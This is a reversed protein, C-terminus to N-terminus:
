RLLRWAVVAATLAAALGVSVSLALLQRRRKSVQAVRMVPVTALVLLNLAARVDEESRMSRDFYEVLAALGLGIGLAAAIGMLYLKPRNPSSPREPLRPADLVRFQEGIQRRELNATINSDAKKTLLERYVQGFTEYDRTLDALETERTPATQIKRQYDAMIDRLRKEEEVKAAIQQDLNALEAKSENLRNRRIGEGPTITEDSVPQASEEAEVRKQLQAIQRKLIAIDPHSPKLRLQMARLTAEANRLEDAVTGAAGDGAPPAPPAAIAEAANVDNITRQVVLRRDRDRNITESLAQLQMGTNHMGELNAEVQNPLEGDHARRYTELKRENEILRRRAEYLQSDLFRNTGEALSERDRLNEDIFLSALKETVKMATRPDESTFSVNFADNRVVAFGIQGRMRDVIDEMLEGAQRREPYLNFDQIVRELRSRSLIQQSITMLREDISASVTGHVYSEPVRQPVVLITADAQYLNPLQRTVASATIAIVLAPVLILWKRRWLISLLIEPTYQKGPIVPDGETQYDSAV